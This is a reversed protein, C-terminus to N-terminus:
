GTGMDRPNPAQDHAPPIPRRHACAACEEAFTGGGAIGNAPPPATAQAASQAPKTTAPKAPTTKPAHDHALATTSSAALALALPLRYM